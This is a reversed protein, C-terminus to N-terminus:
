SLHLLPTHSHTHVRVPTDLNQCKTFEFPKDPFFCVSCVLSIGIVAAWLFFTSEFSPLQLILSGYLADLFGFVVSSVIFCGNIM